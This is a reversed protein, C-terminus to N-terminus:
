ASFIFLLVGEGRGSFLFANQEKEPLLPLSFSRECSKCIYLMFEVSIDAQEKNQLTERFTMDM